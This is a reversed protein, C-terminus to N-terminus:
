RFISYGVAIGSQFDWKSQDLPDVVDEDLAVWEGRYEFTVHGRSIYPVGLNDLPVKFGGGLRGLPDISADVGYRDPYAM